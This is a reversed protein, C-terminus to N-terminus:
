HKTDHLEGSVPPPINFDRKYALATNLWQIIDATVEAHNLEQLVEHRAEPYLKIDVARNGAQRLANALDILRRGHNIPDAEGGVILLPLDNEIQVMNRVPTIRQLGLLVDLWMQTTCIFGCLPDDIYAQVQETDRSLWDWNSRRAKIARRYPYFILTELLRSRGKAGLRWREFRAVAMALRYRASTKFYNSGSLIAGQLSCSHQMLYNLAIYSGMSHGFLFIPTNPFQVRIHHNLCCLDNVVLNWGDEDAFYGLTGLTATHGHGRQDLAFVGIGQEALEVAFRAYRQSHEAMGHAIMMIAIPPQKTSWHNVYLETSDNATLWFATHRM